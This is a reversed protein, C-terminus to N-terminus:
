RSHHRMIWDALDNDLASRDPEFEFDHAYEPYTIWTKDASGLAQYCARSADSLVALDKESQLVLAPARVDRAVRLMSTRMRTVQYFFSASEARVWYTDANLMRTADPNTTMAEPGGALRLPVASGTVGASVIRLAAGLPPNGPNRVWPNVLILGALRNRGSRADAAALHITFIAGMSHGLMFVPAGPRRREAEDLLRTIDQIFLAGSRVHGRPGSSRGFGRHDDMYVSLGRANLESGMDVFWGTHAGLGHLLVLVPATPDAAHWYRFFIATGDELKLSDTGYAGGPAAVPVGWDGVNEERYRSDTAM